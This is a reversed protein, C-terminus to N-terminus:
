SSPASVLSIVVDQIIIKVHNDDTWELSVKVGPSDDTSAQQENCQQRYSESVAPDVVDTRVPRVPGGSLFGILGSPVQWWRLTAERASYSVLLKGDLSFSLASVPLTHGELLRPSASGRMDFIVIDYGAGPSAGSTEKNELCHAAALRFSERHYAVQSFITCLDNILPMAIMLLRQRTGGVVVSGSGEVLRHATEAVLPLFAGLVAPRQRTVDCLLSIGTWRETLTRAAAFDQGLWLPLIKDPAVAILKILTSRVSDLTDLAAPSDFQVVLHAVSGSEDIQSMSALWGILLRFVSLAPVHPAWVAYVKGVLEIAAARFLNRKEDMLLGMLSEAVLRGPEGDICDSRHVALIGLIIAARNMKRANSQTNSPLLPTWYQVIVRLSDEDMRALTQAILLRSAHRIEEALDHWYKSAFSFSPLPLAARILRSSVAMRLRDWEEGGWDVVHLEFIAALSLYLSACMTGSLSWWGRQPACFAVNGNAGMMGVVVDRRPRSLGLRHAWQDVEESDVDWPLLLSLVLVLAQKLCPILTGNGASIEKKLGELFKRMDLMAIQVPDGRRIQRWTLSRSNSLFLKSFEPSPTGASGSRMPCIEHIKGGSFTTMLEEEIGPLALSCEKECNGGMLNWIQLRGDTFILCVKSEGAESVWRVSRVSTQRMGLFGIFKGYLDVLSTRGEEDIILVRDTCIQIFAVIAAFHHQKMPFRQPEADTLKWISVLGRADGCWLLGDDGLVTMCIIPTTHPSSLIIHENLVGGFSLFADLPLLIQLGGDLLGHVVRPEGKLTIVTSCSVGDLKNLLQCPTRSDASPASISVHNPAFEVLQLGDWDIISHTVRIDKRELMQHNRQTGGQCDHEIISGNSMAIAMHTGSVAVLETIQTSPDRWLLCCRLSDGDLIGLWCSHHDCFVLNEGVRICRTINTIPVGGETEIRLPEAATLAKGGAEDFLFHIPSSGNVPWLLIHGDLAVGCFTWGLPVSQVVELTGTRIVNIFGAHGYVFCYEGKASLVMGRATGDIAMVNYLLCRGDDISWQAIEGHTDLSLLVPTCSSQDSQQETVALAVIPHNHGTLLM